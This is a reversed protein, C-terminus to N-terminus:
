QFTLTIVFLLAAITLASTSRTSAASLDIGKFQNCEDMTVQVDKVYNYSETACYMRQTSNGYAHACFVGILREPDNSAGSSSAHAYLQTGYSKAGVPDLDRYSTAIVNSGTGPIELTLVAPVFYGVTLVAESPKRSECSKIGAIECEDVNMAYTYSANFVDPGASCTSLKGQGSEYFGGVRRGAFKDFQWLCLTQPDGELESLGGEAAWDFRTGIAPAVDSVPAVRQVLRHGKFSISTGALDYVLEGVGGLVDFQDTTQVFSINARGLRDMRGHFFGANGYVGRVETPTSSNAPTYFCHHEYSYEDKGNVDFRFTSVSEGVAVKLLFPLFLVLSHFWM